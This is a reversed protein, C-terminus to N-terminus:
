ECQRRHSNGAGAPIFRPYRSGNRHPQHTGRALPSLGAMSFAIGDMMPLEGRWRPYVPPYNQQQTPDNSNGAGAPIFRGVARRMLKGILTGRALPSLGDPFEAWMNLKALEGRWRPYVPSVWSVSCLFSSNGAGAPIFRVRGGPFNTIRHTGRALPSLGFDDQTKPPINELEGRWRPYVAALILRNLASLSDGRWRPYVPSEKGLVPNRQSNGAGAPFIV